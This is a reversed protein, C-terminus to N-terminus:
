FVLDAVEDHFDAGHKVTTSVSCHTHTGHHAQHAHVRRGRCLMIELVELQAVFELILGCSRSHRIRSLDRGINGEM